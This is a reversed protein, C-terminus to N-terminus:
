EQKNMQLDSEGRLMQICHIMGRTNHYTTKWIHSKPQEVSEPDTDLAANYWGGYQKDILYTDIHEWAKKFKGYYDAPDDPYLNHMLLLTNMGEVLGWWSKHDNIIVISDGQKRGADYFGGNEKDWGSALSHDVLQKAIRHTKEDKGWGLVHATELLLFATEVDHGYTFHKTFYGQGDSGNELYNDDAAASWDANFYLQLYGDPHVFTDRVLTFMEELRQRVLSDPWVRYLQTLAEMLHISSNYDKTGIMPSPPASGEQPDLYAPNGMRNLFEFYGGHVPDHPGKEMWHFQKKALDLAEAEQSITYYQSLAYVAFAQGYVRKDNLSEPVPSGDETCYAYFGGKEKDWMRDRLFHFGHRAYGLYANEEPYNELVFSTSWVHRAQQVLAKVQGGRSRSWDREFGSIYGGYVSDINRPYWPELIYQFLSEELQNALEEKEESLPEAVTQQERGRQCGGVALWLGLVVAASPILKTSKM